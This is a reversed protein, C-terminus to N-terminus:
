LLTLFFRGLLWCIEGVIFLLFTAWTGALAAQTVAEPAMAIFAFVGIFFIVLWDMGPMIRRDAAPHYHREMKPM